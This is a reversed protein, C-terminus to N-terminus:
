QLVSNHVIIIIVIGDGFVKVVFMIYGLIQVRTKLTGSLIKRFGDLKDKLWLIVEM